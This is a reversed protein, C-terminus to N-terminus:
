TRGRVRQSMSHAASVQPKDPQAMLRGAGRQRSTPQILGTEQKLSALKLGTGARWGDVRAIRGLRIAWGSLRVFGLDRCSM